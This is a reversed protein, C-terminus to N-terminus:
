HSRNLQDELRKLFIEELRVGYGFMVSDGVGIVRFTCPPKPIAVEHDRMGVSNIRVPVGIEDPNYGGPKLALPEWQAGTVYRTQTWDWFNFDQPAVIRVVAELLLLPAVLSIITVTLKALLGFRRAQEPRDVPM